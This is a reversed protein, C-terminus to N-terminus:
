HLVADAEQRLLEQTDLAYHRALLYFCIDVCRAFTESSEDTVNLTYKKDAVVEEDSTCIKTTEAASIESITSIARGRIRKMASNLAPLLSLRVKFTPPFSPKLASYGNLVRGAELERNLEDRALLAPWNEDAIQEYVLAVDRERNMDDPDIEDIDEDDDDNVDIDDIDTASSTSPKKQPPIRSNDPKPQVKTNVVDAPTTPDFTIRYNM